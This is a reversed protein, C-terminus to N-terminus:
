EGQRCLFHQGNYTWTAHYYPFYENPLEEVCGRALRSRGTMEWQTPQATVNFIYYGPSCQTVSVTGVRYGHHHVPQDYSIEGYHTSLDPCFLM